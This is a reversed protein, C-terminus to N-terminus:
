IILPPPCEPPFVILKQDLIPPAPMNKFKEVLKAPFPPVVLKVEEESESSTEYSSKSSQSDSQSKKEEEIVDQPM